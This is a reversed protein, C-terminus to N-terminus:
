GSIDALYMFPTDATPVFGTLNPPATVIPLPSVLSLSGVTGLRTHAAVVANGSLRAMLLYYGANASILESTPLLAFDSDGTLITNATVSSILDGTRESYLALIFQSTITQTTVHLGIRPNPLNHTPRIYVAYGLSGSPFNFTTSCGSHGASAMFRTPNDVPRDVGTPSVKFLRNAGGTKFYLRTHNMPPNSPTSSQALQTYGSHYIDKFQNNQAGIDCVATVSSHMGTIATGPDESGFVFKRATGTVQAGLAIGFDSTKCDAGFATGSDASSSNDGFATNLSGSSADSSKGARTGRVGVTSSDETFVHGVPDSSLKYADADVCDADINEVDIDTAQITQFFSDGFEGRINM